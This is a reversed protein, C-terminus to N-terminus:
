CLNRYCIGVIKKEKLFLKDDCLELVFLEKWGVECVSQLSDDREIAMIFYFM